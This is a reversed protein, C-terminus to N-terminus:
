TVLDAPLSRKGKLGLCLQNLLTHYNTEGIRRKGGVHGGLYEIMTTDYGHERLVELKEEPTLHHIGSVEEILERALTKAFEVAEETSIGIAKADSDLEEPTPSSQRVGIQQAERLQYKLYLLAIEGMRIKNM